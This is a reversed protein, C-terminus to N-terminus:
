PHTAFKVTYRVLERAPPTAVTFVVSELQEDYSSHYIAGPALLFPRNLTYHQVRGDPEVIRVGRADAQVRAGRAFWAQFVYTERPRSRFRMSVGNAVPAFVWQTDKDLTPRIGPRWSWGGLVRVAGRGDLWLRQGVPFFASGGRTILPGSSTPLLTFPRYPLVPVWESGEQLEAALLGFGYRADANADSAHVAWWLNHARVAILNRKILFAGPVDAALPRAPASATHALTRVADRLAWVALGNYVASTAYPDIGLYVPNAGEFPPAESAYAPNGLSSLRPVLPLGWSGPPYVTELRQLAREAAALYRGRARADRARRAAISLADITAAVSWVEGQGRGFYSGDGDPALLGVLGRAIREFAARLPPPTRAPPLRQLARGLMMASLEDYALPDGTPPDALIGADRILAASRLTHATHTTHRAAQGLFTSIQARAAFARTNAAASFVQRLGTGALTLQATATVLKLNSYCSRDVYCRMASSDDGPVAPSGLINAAIQGRAAQWTSNAALHREDWTYAGALGLLGFGGDRYLRATTGDLPQVAGASLLARIGDDILSPRKSEVGVEIMAQGLMSQGYGPSSGPSPDIFRGGPAQHHAWAEVTAAVLADARAALAATRERAPAPVSGVPAAAHARAAPADGAAVALSAPSCVFLSAACALAAAIVRAGARLAASRSLADRRM